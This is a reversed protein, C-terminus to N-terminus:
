QRRARTDLAPRQTDPRRQLLERFRADDSQAVFETNVERERVAAVIGARAPPRTLAAVATLQAGTAEGFRADGIGQQRGDTSSLCYRDKGTARGRLSCNAIAVSTRSM